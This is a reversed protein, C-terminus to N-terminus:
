AQDEPTGDVDLDLADRIREYNNAILGLITLIPAMVALVAPNTILFGLSVLGWYVISALCAVLMVWQTWSKHDMKILKLLMVFSEIKNM